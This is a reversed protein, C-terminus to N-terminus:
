WHHLLLQQIDRPYFNLSAVRQMPVWAPEHTGAYGSNPQYEPGDGTGLTGGTIRCAYLRRHGQEPQLVEDVLGMPQVHLGLEERCERIVATPDDEGPEVGGGPLMWYDEGPKVRHILLIESGRTIIARVSNKM